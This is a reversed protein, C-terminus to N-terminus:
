TAGWVIINVISPVKLTCTSKKKVKLTEFNYNRYQIISLSGYKGGLLGLLGSLVKQSNLCTRNMEYNILKWSTEISTMVIKTNLM